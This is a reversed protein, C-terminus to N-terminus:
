SSVDTTPQARGWELRAAIGSILAVVALGAVIAWELSGDGHDPDWGTLLEIWERSILTVIALVAAVASLGAELWVRRRQNGAMSM